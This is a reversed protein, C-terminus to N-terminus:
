ASGPWSFVVLFTFWSVIDPIDTIPINPHPSLSPTNSSSPTLNRTDCPSTSRLQVETSTSLLPQGNGIGQYGPPVWPPLVIVPPPYGYSGAPGPLGLHPMQMAPNTVSSSRTRPRANPLIIKPPKEDVSGDGDMIELAWLSLNGHTLAYCIGGNGTYCYTPSEPGKSHIDCRWREQLEAILEKHRVGGELQGSAQVSPKQKGQAVAQSTAGTKHSNNPAPDETDADEFYILVNKLPCNSPKGNALRPPVILSRMRDKFMALEDDNQISITGAKAKDSDLRYRLKVLGPFHGLKEAVAIHLGDLTIGSPIQLPSNSGDSQRVAGQIVFSCKLPDYESCTSGMAKGKFPKSVQEKIPARVMSKVARPHYQMLDLGSDESSSDDDSSAINDLDFEEGGEAVNCATVDSNGGGIATLIQMADQLNGSPFDTAAYNDDYVEYDFEPIPELPTTVAPPPVDAECECSKSKCQRKAQHGSSLTRELQNQKQCQSVQHNNPPPISNGRAPPPVSNGHAPPPIGGSHTPHAHSEAPLCENVCGSEMCRQCIHSGAPFECRVKRAKCRPCAQAPKRGRTPQNPAVQRPDDAAVSDSHARRKRAPM